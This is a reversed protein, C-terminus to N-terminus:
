KGIYGTMKRLIEDASKATRKRQLPDDRLNEPDLGATLKKLEQAMTTLEANDTVNLDPLLGVLSRINGIISDRFIPKEKKMASALAFVVEHVRKWCDKAMIEEARKLAAETSTKIEEQAEKGLQVRWDSMAPIPFVTTEFRFRSVLEDKSPYDEERYLGNLRRRAEAKLLDYGKVFDRVATEYDDKLERMREAFAEYKVAPLVRTGGDLWPMTEEIWFTRARSRAAKIRNLAEPKVLIKRYEHMDTETQHKVAIEDLVRADACKGTWYAISVVSLMAKQTIDM